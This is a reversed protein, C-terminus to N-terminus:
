LRTWLIGGKSNLSIPKNFLIPNELIWIYSKFKKSPILHPPYYDNLYDDGAIKTLVEDINTDSADIVDEIIVSGILGTKLKQIVKDVWEQSANKLWMKDLRETAIVGVRDRNHTNFSRLLYPMSGTVVEYAWPQFLKFASSIEQDNFKM